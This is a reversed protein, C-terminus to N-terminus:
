SYISSRSFFMIMILISPRGKIVDNSPVEEDLKDHRFQWNSDYIDDEAMKAIEESLINM